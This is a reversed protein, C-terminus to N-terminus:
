GTSKCFGPFYSLWLRVLFTVLRGSHLRTGRSRRVYEGAIHQRMKPMDTEDRGKYILLCLEHPKSVSPHPFLVQVLTSAMHSVRVTRVVTLGAWRIQDSNSQRCSDRFEGSCFRFSLVCTKQRATLLRSRSTEREM